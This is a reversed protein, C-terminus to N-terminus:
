CQKGDSHVEQSMPAHNFRKVLLSSTVLKLFGDRRGGGGGGSPARAPSESFIDIGDLILNM